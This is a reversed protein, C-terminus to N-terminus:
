CCRHSKSISKNKSIRLKLFNKVEKIAGKNLMEKTRLNIKEILESRPYDIYLKFFDKKEFNSKTNKYWEIISKKTFLKVEYARISRHIDTPKIHYTIAPDIRLLKKYFKKKDM